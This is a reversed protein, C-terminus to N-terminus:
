DEKDTEKNTAVAATVAVAALISTVVAASRVIKKRRIRRGTELYLEHAEPSLSEKMQNDLRKQFDTKAFPIRM